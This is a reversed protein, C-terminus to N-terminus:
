RASTSSRIMEPRVGTLRSSSSSAQFQFAARAVMALAAAYGASAAGGHTGIQRARTSWGCGSAGGRPLFSPAKGHVKLGRDLGEPAGTMIQRALGHLPCEVMPILGGGSQEAHQLAVGASRIPRTVGRPSDEEDEVERALPLVRAHEREQATKCLVTLRNFRHQAVADRRGELADQDAGIIAIEVGEFAQDLRRLRVLENTSTGQLHQSIQRGGLADSSLLRFGVQEPKVVRQLRLMLAEHPAAPHQGYSEEAQLGEGANDALGKPAAQNIGHDHAVVAKAPIKSSGQRIGLAHSPELIIPEPRQLIRNTLERAPVGERIRGLLILRPPGGPRPM